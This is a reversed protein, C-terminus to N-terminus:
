YYGSTSVDSNHFRKASFAGVKASDLAGAAVM